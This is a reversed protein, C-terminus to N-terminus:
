VTRKRRPASKKAAPKPESGTLQELLQTLHDVKRGLVDLETRLEHESRSTQRLLESDGDEVREEVDNLRSGLENLLHLAREQDRKTPVMLSKWTATMMDDVIIKSRLVGNLLGGSLQLLSSNRMLKELYAATQAEWTQYLQDFIQKSSM